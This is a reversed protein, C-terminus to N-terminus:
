RKGSRIGALLDRQPEVVENVWFRAPGLTRLLTREAIEGFQSKEAALDAGSLTCAITSGAEAPADPEWGVDV